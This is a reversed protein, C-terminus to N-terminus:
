LNTGLLTNPNPSFDELYFCTLTPAKSLALGQLFAYKGDYSVRDALDKLWSELLQGSGERCCEADHKPECALVRDECVWRQPHLHRSSRLVTRVQKTCRRCDSELFNTWRCHQEAHARHKHMGHWLSLDERFVHTQLLHSAAHATQRRQVSCTQRPKWPSQQQMATHVTGAKGKAGKRWSHGLEGHWQWKGSLKYVFYTVKNCLTALTTNQLTKIEVFLGM